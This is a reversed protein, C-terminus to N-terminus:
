LNITVAAGRRVISEVRDILAADEPMSVPRSTAVVEARALGNHKLPPADIVEM